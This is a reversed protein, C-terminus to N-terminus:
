ASGRCRHPSAATSPYAPIPLVPCSNTCLQVTPGRTPQQRSPKCPSTLGVTALCATVRGAPQEWGVLRPARLCACLRRHGPVPGRPIGCGPSLCAHPSTLCSDGLGQWLRVWAGRVKRPVHYSIPLIATDSLQLVRLVECGMVALARRPVLAAGRLVSELLCQTVTPSVLPPSDPHTPLPFSLASPLPSSM